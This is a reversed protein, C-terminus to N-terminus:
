EFEILLENKPVAQGEAVHIKKIKGNFPALLKNQMKMAEIILLKSGKKVKQDNKVFLKLITGPIFAALKKEDPKEWNKRNEFKKSFQTIYKGGDIIISKNKPKIETEKEM